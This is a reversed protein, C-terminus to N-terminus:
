IFWLDLKGVEDSKFSRDETGNMSASQVHMILFAGVVLLTIMSKEVNIKIEMKVQYINEFPRNQFAFTRYEENKDLLFLSFLRINLHTKWYNIYFDHTWLVPIFCKRTCDM